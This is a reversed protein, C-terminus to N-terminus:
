KGCNLGARLDYVLDVSYSPQREKKTRIFFVWNKLFAIAQGVGEGVRM